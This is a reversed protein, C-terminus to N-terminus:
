LGWLLIIAREAKTLVTTILIWPPNDWALFPFIAAQLNIIVSIVLSSYFLIKSLGSKKSSWFSLPIALFPILPTLYRASYGGGWWYDVASWFFFSVLFLSYTLVAEKKYHRYFTRLGFVCFVLFPAFLFISHSPSVLFGIIGDLPNGVLLPIPSKFFGGFTKDHFVLNILSFFLIPAGFIVAKGWKKNWCLYGFFLPAFLVSPYKILLSYGLFLGSLFVMKRCILFYYALILFVFLYPETWFTNSYHWLQTGVAIFFTIMLAYGENRHYFRLILYLFYLGVLSFIISTYIVSIEILRSNNMPWLFLATLLSTGIPHTPFIDYQPNSIMFKNDLLPQGDKDYRQYIMSNDEKLYRVHPVLNRNKYIRGAEDSGELVSQYNNRLEIDRDKILSNVIVLYHPIDGSSVQPLGLRIKKLHYSEDLDYSIFSPLLYLFFIILFIFRTHVLKHEMLFLLRKLALYIELRM